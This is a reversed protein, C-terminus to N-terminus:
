EAKIGIDKYHAKIDPPSIIQDKNQLNNQRNPIRLPEMYIKQNTKKWKQSFSTLIKIPPATFKEKSKPLTSIDITGLRQDILM